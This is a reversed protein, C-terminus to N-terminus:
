RGEMDAPRDFDAIVGPDEVDLRLFLDPHEEFLFAAGRDGPAKAFIAAFHDRGLCVPHGAQGRYFPRVLRKTVPVGAHGSQVVDRITRPRILPQDVLAILAGDNDEPIEALGRQLSTMLGDRYAENRAPILGLEGARRDVADGDAGSVVIIRDLAISNKLLEAVHDLLPRGRFPLLAKPRGMRTGEGAALILASVKM